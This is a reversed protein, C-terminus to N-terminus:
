KTMLYHCMVSGRNNRVIETICKAIGYSVIFVDQLVVMSKKWKVTKRMVKILDTFYIFQYYYPIRILLNNSTFGSKGKSMM